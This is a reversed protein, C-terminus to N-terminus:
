SLTHPKRRVRFPVFGQCSACQVAFVTGRRKRGDDPLLMDRGNQFILHPLALEGVRVQEAARASRAFRRGRLDKRARDVAEIRLVALRASRAGRAPKGRRAARVHDLDVRCRVVADVVNTRQDLLRLERRELQFVAHEDDVLHVHERGRREVREQFRELLRGRVHQEDEGRGFRLLKRRRDYRATLAKIEMPERDRVDDRAEPRDEFLRACPDLRVSQPQDGARRVAAHAVRKREGILAKGVRPVVYGLLVNQVREARNGGGHEFVGSRRQKRSVRRVRDARQVLDHSVAAIEAHEQAIKGFM